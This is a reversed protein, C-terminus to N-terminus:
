FIKDLGLMDQYEKYNEKRKQKRRDNGNVKVPICMSMLRSYTRKKKPDTPNQLEQLTLNTTIILPKNSRYRADIINFVIENMYETDREAALDDIVLLDVKNIMDLYSQKGEFMGSLKNILRSFNTVMCPHGKDILSNAICAAAFTKGTGVSGYLILGKGDELMKNFNKVYQKATHSLSQNENDDNNFTFNIMEQDPFGTQRLDKIKMSLEYKKLDEEEKKLKDSMCKCLCFPTRKRGTPDIVECQKKTKCKGCVWLGDIDKYDEPNIRNSVKAKEELNDLLKNFEYSM